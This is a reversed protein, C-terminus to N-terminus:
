NILANMVPLSQAILSKQKAVLLIGLIGIIPLGLRVAVQRRLQEDILLEDASLELVVAIAHAEGADLGQKHQLQDALYSSTLVQTQFWGSKPIDAIVPNSAATLESAFISPIIVTRCTAKRM